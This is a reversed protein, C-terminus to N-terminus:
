SIVKYKTLAENFILEFDNTSPTENPFIQDVTLALAHDIMKPILLELYPSSLELCPNTNVEILWVHFDSDILFDYGLIEFAHMKKEPSLKTYTALVTDRVLEKIRPLIDEYFNKGPYNNSLYDQLEAYSLKNGAEHNGYQTSYKQVADNTLHIFRNDVDKTCFTVSSTRLYGQKYFYSVINGQISTILGYCRIDFKRSKYLLPNHIYKQVVYTREEESYYSDLVKTIQEMSNCVQIGNGRNTGEGPKIIWMNNKGLKQIQNFASVFTKFIPDHSGYLIHYTVPIKTFPDVKLNTYYSYMNHFLRKKSTLERNEPLKNYLRSKTPTILRLPLLHCYYEQTLTLPYETIPITITQDLTDEYTKLYDYVVNKKVATWIFNASTCSYVRKWKSRSKLAKNILESNNGSGLFYKYCSEDEEKPQIGNLKQLAQVLSDRKLFNKIKLVKPTILFKRSKNQLSKYIIASENLATTGRIPLGLVNSNGNVNPNSMCKYIKSGNELEIFELELSKLGLKKLSTKSSDGILISSSRKKQSIFSIGSALYSKSTKDLQTIKFPTSLRQINSGSVLRKKQNKDFTLPIKLPKGTISLLIPKKETNRITKDM